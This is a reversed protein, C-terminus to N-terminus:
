ARKNADARIPRQPAIVEIAHGTANPRVPPVAQRPQDRLRHFGKPPQFTEPSLPKMEIQNVQTKALLFATRYPRHRSGAPIRFRVESKKELMLAPPEPTSSPAIDPGNIMTSMKREFEAIEKAGPATTSVCASITVREFKDGQTARYESCPHDAILRMKGTRDLKISQDPGSASLSSSLAKLPLESYTHRQKDVVYIINKDLDTIAAINQREVKQKNGQLYITKTQSSTQGDPGTAISTEDMVVGAYLAPASALVAIVAFIAASFRLFIM